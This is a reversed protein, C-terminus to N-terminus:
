TFQKKKHIAKHCETCVWTVILPKSYDFHHAQIKKEKTGCMQCQQPNILKGSKRASSYIKFSQYRDPHNKWFRRNAELRIEKNQKYYEKFYSPNEKRWKKNYEKRDILKYRKKAVESKREKNNDGMTKIKKKSM